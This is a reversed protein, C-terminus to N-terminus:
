GAAGTAGFGAGFGVGFGAGFGPTLVCGFTAGFIGVFGFNGCFRGFTEALCTTERHTLDAYLRTRPPPLPDDALFGLINYAYVSWAV